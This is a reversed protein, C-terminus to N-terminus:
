LTADPLLEALWSDLIRLQDNTPEVFAVGMGFGEHVYVIKGKTVFIGQDRSILVSISTGVPLPNLIDVYCGQRSIESVRGSFRAASGSDILQTTAVFTYRPVARKGQLPTTSGRPSKRSNGLAM